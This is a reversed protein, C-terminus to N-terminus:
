TGAPVPEARMRQYAATALLGFAVLWAYYGVGLSTFERSIVIQTLSYSNIIFCVALAIAANRLGRRAAFPLWACAPPFIFNTLAGLFFPLDDPLELGIARADRSYSWVPNFSARFAHWGNIDDIVPLFWCGIFAALASLELLGPRFGSRPGPQM